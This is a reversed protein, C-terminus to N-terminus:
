HSARQFQSNDCGNSEAIHWDVLTLRTSKNGNWFDISIKVALDLETGVPPVVGAMNWGIVLLRKGYQRNLWFKVHVRLTGFLEPVGGIRAARILFIPEQNGQGFPHLLELDRMFDDDVDDVNLEGAIEIVEELAMNRTKAAVIECFRARFVELNEPQV